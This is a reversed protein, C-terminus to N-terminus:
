VEYDIVARDTTVEAVFAAAKVHEPHAQYAALDEPSDFESYLAVDWAAESLNFDLGVEIHRVQPVSERLMEVMTKMKRANVEANAGAAAPALKWFVIHRVM